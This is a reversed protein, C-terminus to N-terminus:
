SPLYSGPWRASRPRVRASEPGHIRQGNGSQEDECANDADVARHDTSAASRGIRAEDEQEVQLSDLCHTCTGNCQGGDADATGPSHGSPGPRGAPLMRTAAPAIGEARKAATTRVPDITGDEHVRPRSSKCRQKRPQSALSTRLARRVQDASGAHRALPHTRTPKNAPREGDPHAM